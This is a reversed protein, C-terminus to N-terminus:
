NISRKHQHNKIHEGCYCTTPVCQSCYRIEMTPNDIENKGCTACVHLPTQKKPLVFSKNRPLTTRMDQWFFLLFNSLSLITAVKQPFPGFLISLALGAWTLYGLWKIKVPLIFFLLVQFEPYLHAFALFLSTFLYSNTVPVNPFLISSSIIALYGTLIYVLYRFSGWQNELSNGLLYYFYMTLAFFLLNTSIPAFLATVLRWIQGQFLLAGTLSFYGSNEPHATILLYSITQGAILFLTINQPTFPALKKEIKDFFSAMTPNYWM